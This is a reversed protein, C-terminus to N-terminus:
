LAGLFAQRAATPDAASVFLIYNGQIEVVSRELMDYQDIGYGEFSNKQTEIRDEIAAKVADQQSLDSLKIILLEEAGMNTTPCYLMAGEFDNGDLGYLRKLMQNDAQQMTTMDLQATVTDTMVQFDTGSERGQALLFYLFVLVVLVSLWKATELLPIKAKEM